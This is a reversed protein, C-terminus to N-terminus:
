EMMSTEKMQINKFDDTSPLQFHRINNDKFLFISIYLFVIMCIVVLSVNISLNRIWTPIKFKKGFIDVETAAFKKSDTSAIKNDYLHHNVDEDSSLLLSNTVRFPKEKGDRYKLIENLVISLRAGAILIRNRFIEFWAFELTLDINFNDSIPERSLPNSYIKSCMLNFSELAWEDVVDIGIEKWRQLEKDYSDRIAFIHTWGGFWFHPKEIKLKKTIGYEWIDYLSIKENTGNIVMVGKIDRGLNDDSFGFHLPQHLDGILNILFKVCDSDTLQIGIPYEIEVKNQSGILRYFLHKIMRVLCYKNNGCNNGIHNTNNKDLLGNKDKITGDGNFLFDSRNQSQFHFPLTSPHKQSVREGWGSIDVIDKGNMLRKLKQSYKHQLGSITTMGIASHGDADFSIARTTLLLCIYMFLILM